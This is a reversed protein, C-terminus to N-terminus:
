KNISPYLSKSLESPFSSEAPVLETGAFPACDSYEARILTHLIGPIHLHIITM